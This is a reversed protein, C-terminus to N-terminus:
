VTIKFCNRRRRIREIIKDACQMEEPIQKTKKYKKLIKMVEKGKPKTQKIYGSIESYPVKSVDIENNENLVSTGYRLIFRDSDQKSLFRGKIRIRRDAQQKRTNYNVTKLWNRRKSRYRDIKIQREYLRKSQEFQAQWFAPAITSTSGFNANTPFPMAEARMHTMQCPMMPLQQGTFSASANKPIIIPVYLVKGNQLSAPVPPMYLFPPLPQNPTIEPLGFTQPFSDDSFSTQHSNSPYDAFQNPVSLEPECKVQDFPLTAKISTEEFEFSDFHKPVTNQAQFFHSYDWDGQGFNNEEETKFFEDIMTMSM